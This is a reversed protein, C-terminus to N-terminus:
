VSVDGLAMNIKPPVPTATANNRELVEKQTLIDLIKAVQLERNSGEERHHLRMFNAMAIKTVKAAQFSEKYPDLMSDIENQPPADNDQVSIKNSQLRPHLICLQKM